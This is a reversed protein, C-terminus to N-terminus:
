PAPQLFEAAVWGSQGNAVIERWERTGDNQTNGTADVRTGDPVTAIPTNNQNPEPRLFLGEVGTGTVVFAQAAVAPPSQLTPDTGPINSAPVQVAPFSADASPAASASTPDIFVPAADSVEAPASAAFQDEAPPNSNTWNSSLRWIALLLVLGLIVGGGIFLKRSNAPNAAWGTVRQPSFGGAAQRQRRAQARSAFNQDVVTQQEYISAGEGDDAPAEGPPRRREFRMNDALPDDQQAAEDDAPNQKRSWGM